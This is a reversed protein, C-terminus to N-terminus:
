KNMLNLRKMSIKKTREWPFTVIPPSYCVIFVPPKKQGKQRCDVVLIYLLVLVHKCRATVVIDWWMTWILHPSLM